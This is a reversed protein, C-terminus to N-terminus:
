NLILQEAANLHTLVQADRYSEMFEANRVAAAQSSGVAELVTEATSSLSTGQSTDGAVRQASVHEGAETQLM